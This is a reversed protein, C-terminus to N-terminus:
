ARRCGAINGSYLTEDPCSRCNVGIGIVVAHAGGPLSSAELLIGCVKRGGILVDNPWKLSPKIRGESLNELSQAVALSAVFPLTASERPDAADILLLSAHLNGEPSVWERGRRGRGANQSAATIWLDGAEGRVARRMCEANTSDVSALAIHRPM